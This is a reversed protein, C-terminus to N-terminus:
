AIERLYALQEWVADATRRAERVTEDCSQAVISLRVLMWQELEDFLATPLHSAGLNRAALMVCGFAADFVTTGLALRRGQVQIERELLPLCHERFHRAFM